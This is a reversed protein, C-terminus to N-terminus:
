QKYFSYYAGGFAGLVEIYELLPSPGNCSYRLTKFELPNEIVVSSIYCRGADGIRALVFTTTMKAYLVGESVLENIIVLNYNVIKKTTRTYEGEERGFIEGITKVEGFVMDSSIVESNYMWEPISEKSQAFINSMSLFFCVFFFVFYKRM